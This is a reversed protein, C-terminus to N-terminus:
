MVTATQSIKQVNTTGLVQYEVMVTHTTGRDWDASYQIRTDGTTPNLVVLYSGSVTQGPNVNFSSFPTVRYGDVTINRITIVKDGVNKVTLQLTISIWNVSYSSNIMQTKATYYLVVDQIQLFRQSSTSTTMLLFQRLVFVGAIVAIAILILTAIVPSIAKM